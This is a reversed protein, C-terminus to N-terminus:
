AVVVGTEFEILAVALEATAVWALLDCEPIYVLVM